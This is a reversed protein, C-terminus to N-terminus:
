QKKLRAQLLTILDVAEGSKLKEEKDIQFEKYEEDETWSLCLKSNEIIKQFIQAESFSPPVLVFSEYAGIGEFSVSYDIKRLQM